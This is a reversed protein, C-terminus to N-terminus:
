QTLLGRNNHTACHLIQWTVLHVAIECQMPRVFLSTQGKTINWTVLKGIETRNHSITRKRDPLNKLGILLNKHSDHESSPLNESVLRRFISFDFAWIIISKLQNKGFLFQM